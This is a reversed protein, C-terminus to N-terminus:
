SFPGRLVRDQGWPARSATVIASRTINYEIYDRYIFLYVGMM